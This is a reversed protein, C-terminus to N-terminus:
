SDGFNVRKLIAERRSILNAVAEIVDYNKTDGNFVKNITSRHLNLSYAIRQIDGHELQDRLKKLQLKNPYGM